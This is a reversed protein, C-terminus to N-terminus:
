CAGCFMSHGVASIAAHVSARGRRRDASKSFTSAPGRNFRTRALENRTNGIQVASAAADLAVSRLMAKLSAPDVRDAKMVALTVPENLLADLTMPNCCDTM